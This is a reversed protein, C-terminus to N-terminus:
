GPRRWRRLRTVYAEDPTWRPLGLKRAFLPAGMAVAVCACVIAVLVASRGTAIVAGVLALGSVWRIVARGHRAVVHMDPTSFASSGLIQGEQSTPTDGALFRKLSRDDASCHSVTTTM